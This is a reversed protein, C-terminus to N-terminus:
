PSYYASGMIWSRQNGYYGWSTSVLIIRDLMPPWQTCLPLSIPRLDCLELFTHFAKSRASEQLTYSWLNELGGWPLSNHLPRLQGEIGILLSGLAKVQGPSREKGQEEEEGLLEEAAGAGRSSKAQALIALLQWSM